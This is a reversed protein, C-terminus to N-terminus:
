SKLGDSKILSTLTFGESGSISKRLDTVGTEDPRTRGNREGGKKIKAKHREVVASSLSKVVEVLVLTM